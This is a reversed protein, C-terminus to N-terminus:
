RRTPADAPPRGRLRAAEARHQRALREDGQLEHARGLNEQVDANQPDLAAAKQLHPLAGPVDGTHLMLGGLNNHAVAYDPRITLARSYEAMADDTRGAFALATGLNFHAVASGPELTLSAAFQDVAESLRGAELYLLALDDHLATVDPEALIRARYGAIDEALAKPRFREALVARDQDSGALVQIWLDGMEDASRQGWRVTRPPQHPNRPNAASNDYRARMEIRTGKPLPLPEVFRYVQQWRFDWDRIALLTRTSGDPLVAVAEIERALDHAHPQLALAEVDVPLEFSDAVRFAREGPPIEFTQKGLRLMTPTRSPPDPGFYLGISPQIVEPKGSPQMHLEVVLDTGPELRWALGRPLFPALQGPSWGLFHGDPYLASYALLGDYGPQPDAEDRLRSAPTRDVRITAHHVVRGGPRFDFGKVYRLRDVPIHAVFIRFVDAGGADLTYAPLLLELDPVGMQWGAAISPAPPLGASAGEPAGADVWRQIIAIEASTLRTEGVLAVHGPEAKWPPMYRSSTARAIQTAHARASAYELLDFPAPGGPHHCRVCRAFVIPAIDRAFTPAPQADAVLPVCWAASVVTARLLGVSRRPLTWRRSFLTSALM